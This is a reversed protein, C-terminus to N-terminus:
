TWMGWSHDEILGVKTHRSCVRITVWVTADGSHIRAAAMCRDAIVDLADRARSALAEVEKSEPDPKARLADWEAAIEEADPPSPTCQWRLIRFAGETSNDLRLATVVQTGDPAIESHSTTIWEEVPQGLIAILESRSWTKNDSM